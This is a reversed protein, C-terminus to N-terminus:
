TFNVFSNLKLLKDLSLWCLNTNEGEQMNFIGFLFYICYRQDSDKKWSCVMNRNRMRWCSRNLNLVLCINCAKRVSIAVWHWPFSIHHRPWNQQFYLKFHCSVYLFYANGTLTMPAIILLLVTGGVSDKSSRSVYM